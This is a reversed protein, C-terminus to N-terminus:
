QFGLAVWGLDAVVQVRALGLFIVVVPIPLGSVDLFRKLINKM